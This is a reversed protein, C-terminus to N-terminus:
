VKQHQKRYDTPTVGTADRFSKSFYSRNGFGLVDSIEEISKDTYTLWYQARELRIQRIYDVISVGMEQRFRRSLYTQTYRAKQALLELTLKEEPHNSI